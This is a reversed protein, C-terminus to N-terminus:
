NIVCLVIVHNDDSVITTHTKTVIKCITVPVTDMMVMTLPVMIFDVKPRAINSFLLLIKILKFPFLIM